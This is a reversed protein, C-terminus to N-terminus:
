VNSLAKRIAWMLVFMSVVYAAAVAVFVILLKTQWAKWGYRHKAYVSSAVLSSLLVLPHLPSGIAFNEPFLLLLILVSSEIELAAEDFGGWVSHVLFSTLAGLALVVFYVWAAVTGARSGPSGTRYRWFFYLGTVIPALVGGVSAYNGFFFKLFSPGRVYGLLLARWEIYIELIMLLSVLPGAWALGRVSWSAM